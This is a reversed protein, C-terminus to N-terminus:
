KTASLRGFLKGAVANSRPVSVAITDPDSTEAGETVTVAVGNSDAAASVEGVVVSNPWTLNSGWNFALAVESESEDKRTFTFVFHTDTVNLSPLIASSSALPNGGLVFELSNAIGDFDPDQAPGDNVGATLGAASAWSDFASASGVVLQLNNGEVSVIGTVEGPLNVTTPTGVIGGTATALIYTGDALPAAATLDLVNGAELTLSGSIVRTAQTGATAALALQHTAGSAITVNGGLSGNGGLSAGSAVTVDGTASSQDGAITLKGASVLVSGGYSNAGTFTLTGAGTKEFAGTGSVLGNITIDYPANAGDAAKIVFNGSTQVPIGAASAWNASAGLTGGQLKLSPLLDVSSSGIVMGGAGVNLLGATLKVVPTGALALQGFQIRGVNAIAENRVLFAAKGVYGSGLVVGATTSPTALTGGNIDLISWRDGNNLGVTLTGAVSLSGGTDVRTVVTSNAASANGLSLNSTVNVSGGTIHLNRDSTAEAPEAQINEFTRGLTISGATLTGGTVKILAGDNNNSTATATVAGSFTAEGSSLTLGESGVALNGAGTVLKGGAVTMRGTGTVSLSSGNVQGSQIVIDGASVSTTGTYTHTNSLLLNGTGSKSLGGTGGVAPSIAGDYTFNFGATEINANNAGAVQYPRSSTIDNLLRLTGGVFTAPSAINGLSTNSNVALVGNALNTGGDYSNDGTLQLVGPGSKTIGGGTVSVSIAGSVNLNLTDAVDFSVDEADVAIPATIVHDGAISVISSSSTGNDMLLSGSTGSALTIESAEGNLVLEGITRVGDLDITFFEPGFLGGFGGAGPGIKANAGPANPVTNKTWHSATGWSEGGDVTWYNSPDSGSVTLYVGSADSSFAYIKGPDGDVVSLATSATGSITAGTTNFIQYTGETAFGNVDVTAGSNLTLTGSLTATDNGGSFTVDYVSGNALTLNVFSLNGVGSTGPALIGGNAITTTGAISGVGALTASSKVTTAGAGAKIGDIRLTGSDVNTAGAYDLLTTSGLTLVGSGVKTVASNGRIGGNFTSDTNLGGISYTATGVTGGGLYATASTGSLSGIPLTNGGSGSVVETGVSGAMSLNTSSFSNGNFAAGTQNIRWRMVGSGTLNLNGSFGTFSNRLDARASGTAINMNLTGSGTVAGKMEFRNPTNINGTHGSPVAIPNLFDWTNNSTFVSNMTGGNQLTIPGSGLGGNTFNTGNNARLTGANVLIGGATNNATSSLLLVGTGEKTIAFGGSIAGNIHLNNPTTWTQNAGLVVPGNIWVWKAAASTIGNAGVTLSNGTSLTVDGGSLNMDIGSWSLDAGLAVTQNANVTADWVAIDAAGPVAGGVWSTTLNLADANNAKVIPAAMAQGAFSVVILATLPAVVSALSRFKPKM